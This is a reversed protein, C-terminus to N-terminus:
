EQCEGRGIVAELEPVPISLFAEVAQDWFQTGSGGRVQELADQVPMAKRYPRDNTMADFADCLPFIRAGLPIEMERLGQPYGKGDWREHHCYVIERAVELFDVGELISRGEGPHARMVEWDAETLPGAKNLVEDPVKLKGVDHLLFGYEFQPDEAHEPAVLSTLLMGYRSVRYIHDGTCEDKAEVAMALTRVTAKYTRGLEALADCLQRSRDREAEYTSRFDVAFADLQCRLADIEQGRRDLAWLLRFRDVSLALLQPLRGLRGLEAEASTQAPAVGTIGVVGVMEGSLELPFAFYREALDGPQDEFHHGPGSIVPRESKLASHAAEELAGSVRASPEGVSVVLQLGNQKGPTYIAGDAAALLEIAETLLGRCASRVSVASSLDAVAKETGNAAAQRTSNLM